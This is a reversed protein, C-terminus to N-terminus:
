LSEETRGLLFLTLSLGIRFQISGPVARVNKQQDDLLPEFARRENEGLPSRTRTAESTVWDTLIEPPWPRLAVAKEFAVRAADNNGQSLLFTRQQLYVDVRRARLMLSEPNGEYSALAEDLQRLAEDQRGQRFLVLALGNYALRWRPTANLAKRYAKESESLNGQAYLVNGLAWVLMASDPRVKLGDQVVKLAEASNMKELLASALSLYNLSFRP